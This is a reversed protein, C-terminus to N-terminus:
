VHKRRCYLLMLVAMGALLAISGPEPVSAVRFGITSWVDEPPAAYNSRETSILYDSSLNDDGGRLGRSDSNVFGENWQFVDGGMDYTGYPGPSAAFAGVPTQYNTPDTYVGNFYNANNTGTASLVNSPATNSQTPYSWYGANTGGGKYYAAKYWENESPIFYMAGANRTIAMLGANDVAGNLTYAGTETTGAGEDGVPQNNQLWNCFRAADGWTVGFAPVNGNGMVSYSYSGVSGSQTIGLNLGPNTPYWEAMVSNFLGYTDTKAVANLFQCYQSLTTDYTGIRYTYPVAGYGTTADDMVATDAANGPDGVTVFQMSTQGAPMNFVDARAVGAMLAALALASAMMSSRYRM